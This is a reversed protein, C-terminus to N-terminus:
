QGSGLTEEVLEVLQNSNFPKFLYPKGTSTLFNETAPTITDGTIFVVREALSPFRRKMIEYLEKGSMQPMKLDIICLEYSNEAIKELAARANSVSDTIYGEESLARTLIDCIAPEDDIILIHRTAKLRHPRNEAVVVKEEVIAQGEAALPLEINVTAGRGQQSQVYIKGGHQTIIGYCVSLGLGTGSGVEKTTFFPDFVRNISNKSIGPGDDAISIKICDEVMSTTITIKGRHKTQAIAHEANILINLIVQQMQHYDALMQPLNSALNTYVGINSTRLQYDRLELTKEILENVDFYTKQPEHRRAFGLLNQVIRAARQSEYYIRDLDKKIDQSVNQRDSLLQAYGIIGTLPNNLEHAIGAALEGVSALKSATLLQQEAGKRETIDRHIGRFGIIDGKQNRLLSASVESFRRSGDKRIVEAQVQELPKGMRYVQNFIKYMAEVNEEPTLAKYNMGKLEEGPYGFMRCLSDNFFTINGALDLEFYGDGMDDLITRYREESQRLSEEMQKRETVDRSIGRFGIIEGAQNRLLSVSTEAFGKTGDKQDSRWSFGQIPKGTRYVQNFAKYVTKVDEEPTFVRFNMGMMEDRTYGLSRCVSDNFFTFNGGLDVEFYGDEISDLITRYKEESQRLAEEALKRETIDVVYGTVTMGQPHKVPIAVIEVWAHSGDKRILEFEDPGTTKGIANLALLKAAKVLYEQPLLNLQLFSKGILEERSYGIIEEAKKNGYLFTGKLDSLYVGAPINETFDRLNEQYQRLIEEELPLRVEKEEGEKKKIISKTMM